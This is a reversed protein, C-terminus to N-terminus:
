PRVWTLSIATRQFQAATTDVSSAASSFAFLKLQVGASFRKELSINLDTTAIAGQAVTQAVLIASDSVRMVYLIKVTGDASSAQRCSGTIRWLGARNLTFTDTSLTVDTHTDEAVGSAFPIATGSGGASINIVQSLATTYRAHRGDGLTDVWAGAIRRWIGGVDTTIVIQGNYPSTIASDRDATSSCVAVGQVRWATGDYIEKWDRDQRYVAFGDYATIADREAQSRVPLLGGAAVTFPFNMTVVAPQGSAVSPVDISAIRFAGAPVAPESGSGAVGATYESRALKLGSGGDDDTDYTRLTVIDKRALTAHAATLPQTEDAPLAVFYPGCDVTWAPDVIALGARITLTSGALSTQLANGGPRVGARAGLTRGNYQTLPAFLRRLERQDYTVGAVHLLNDPM